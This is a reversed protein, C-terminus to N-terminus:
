FVRSLKLDPYYFHLIDKYSHGHLALGIAGWQCMGRGHGFGAGVIYFQEPNKLSRKIIFLNSPLPNKNKDALVQRIQFGSLSIEQDEAKMRM